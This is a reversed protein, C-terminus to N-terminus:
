QDESPTKTNVRAMGAAFDQANSLALVLGSIDSDMKCRRAASFWTPRQWIRLNLFSIHFWCCVTVQPARAKLAQWTTEESTDTVAKLVQCVHGMNCASSIASKVSVCAFMHMFAKWKEEMTTKATLLTSLCVQAEEVGQLQLELKAYRGVQLLAVYPFQM